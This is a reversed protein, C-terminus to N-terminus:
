IPGRNISGWEGTELGPRHCHEGMNNPEVRHHHEGM